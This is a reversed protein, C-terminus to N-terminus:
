TMIERKMLKLGADPEASVNCFRSPITERERERQGERARKRERLYAKFFVNPLITLFQPLFILM